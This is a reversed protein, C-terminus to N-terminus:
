AVKLHPRTDNIRRNQTEIETIIEQASDKEKPTTQQNLFFKLAYKEEKYEVVNYGLVCDIELCIEQATKELTARDTEPTFQLINEKHAPPSFQEM